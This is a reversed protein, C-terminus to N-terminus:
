IKEALKLISHAINEFQTKKELSVMLVDNEMPFSMVILKERFSMSFKVKGLDDDFERRMKVRLALEMYLMEDRKRDGLQKKSPTMGGAVLRGKSNIVGAFRVKSDIKQVLTCLNEYDM